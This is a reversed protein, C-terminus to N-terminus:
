RGPYDTGPTDGLSSSNDRTNPYEHYGLKGFEEKVM